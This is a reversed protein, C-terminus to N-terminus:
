RDILESNAFSDKRYVTSEDAYIITISDILGTYHVAVNDAFCKAYARSNDQNDIVGRLTIFWDTYPFGHMQMPLGRNDIKVDYFGHRHKISDCFTACSEEYQKKSEWGCYLFPLFFVVISLPILADTLWKRKM